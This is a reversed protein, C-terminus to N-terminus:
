ALPNGTAPDPHLEVGAIELADERLNFRSAARDLGSASQDAGLHAPETLEDIRTAHRDAEVGAGWGLLSLHPVCNPGRPARVCRARAVRARSCFVAVRGPHVDPSRPQTRRIPVCRVRSLRRLLPRVVSRRLSAGEM